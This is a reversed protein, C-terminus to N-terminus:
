FLSIEEVVPKSDTNIETCPINHENMWHALLHRHCFDGTKEYCLLIKGELITKIEVPDLHDLVDKQYTRIYENMADRDQKGSKWRRIMEETPAVAPYHAGKYWSPLWRCIAVCKDKDLKRINGFYSTYTMM